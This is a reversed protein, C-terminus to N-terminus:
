QTGHENTLVRAACGPCVYDYVHGALACALVINVIIEKSDFWEGRVRCGGLIAHLGREVSDPVDLTARMYLREPSGTQLENIRSYPSNAKGIKLPGDEGSQVFYIM